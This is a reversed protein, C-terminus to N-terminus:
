DVILQLGGMLPYYKSSNSYGGGGGIKGVIPHTGVRHRPEIDFRLFSANIDWILKLLFFFFCFIKDTHISCCILLFFFM